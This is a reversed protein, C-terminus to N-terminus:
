QDICQFHFSSCAFENYLNEGFTGHTSGSPRLGAFGEKDIVVSPYVCLRDDCDILMTYSADYGTREVHLFLRLRSYRTNGYSNSLGVCALLLAPYLTESAM